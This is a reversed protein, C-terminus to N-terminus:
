NLEWKKLLKEFAGSSRLSDLGSNFKKVLQKSKGELAVFRLGADNLPPTAITVKEQYLDEVFATAPIYDVIVGDVDENILENLAYPISSYFQTLVEPYHRLVVVESEKSGVAIGKGPLNKMLAKKGETRVILVPGTNLFLDSFQYKKKEFTYPYMSSLMADYRGEELGLSLNDWNRNIREFHLGEKKGIETLLENCFAFVNAEKGM